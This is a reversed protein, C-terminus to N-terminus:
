IILSWDTALVVISAADRIVDGSKMESAKLSPSEILGTLRAQNPRYRSCRFRRAYSYSM